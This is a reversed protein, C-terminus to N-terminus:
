PKLIMLERPRLNLREVGGVTCVVIDEIRAGHRGQLYIGPEISFVMGPELPDDNGAVLYPEEHVDLGIGHGVRHVFYQGYGAGAIIRRAADDISAASVGPRVQACAARQAELLVGFYATFDAPPDGLCYTRTSDSCYGDAMRGGIDVVVPDGLRIVRDSLAHHPSGGNPGSAVIVFDAQAHGEAVIATAIDRGVQRETRGARLWEGMRAHVRDIAAAADRLAEVEDPSKRIRLERLLAGAPSWDIGSISAQLRLLKVAWMRDDIAIRRAKSAAAAVLAYPDDTEQWALVPIGLEGIPSALAAPKELMPVIISPDGQAPVVLCTLRELPLADYGILYRLDAGPTLLLADVGRALALHKAKLIRDAYPSVQSMM